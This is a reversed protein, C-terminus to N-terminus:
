LSKGKHLIITAWSASTIKWAGETYQLAVTLIRPRRVPTGRFDASVIVPVVVYATVNKDIYVTMPDHAVARWNTIRGLADYDDRDGLWRTSADPGQWTFPALDDVVVANSAFYSSLGRANDANIEAIAGNVPRMVEAVGPWPPLTSASHAPALTLALVAAAAIPVVRFTM